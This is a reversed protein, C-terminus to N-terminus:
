MVIFGMASLEKMLRNVTKIHAVQFILGESEPNYNIAFARYRRHYFITIRERRANHDLVNGDEDVESGRVLKTTLPMSGQPETGFIFTAQNGAKSM